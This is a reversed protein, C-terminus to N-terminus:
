HTAIAAAGLGVAAATGFIALNSNIQNQAVQARMCTEEITEGPNPVGAECQQEAQSTCGCLFTLGILLLGIKLKM